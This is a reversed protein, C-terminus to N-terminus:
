EAEGTPCDTAADPDSTFVTAGAPATAEGTLLGKDGLAEGTCRRRPEREREDDVECRCRSILWVASGSLM